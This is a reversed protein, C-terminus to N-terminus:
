SSSLFTMMFHDDSGNVNRSMPYAKRGIIANMKECKHYLVEHFRMTCHYHVPIYRVKAAFLDPVPYGESASLAEWRDLKSDVPGEIGGGSGIKCVYWRGGVDGGIGREGRIANLLRM